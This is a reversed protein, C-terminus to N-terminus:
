LEKHLWTEKLQKDLTVDKGDIKESIVKAAEIGSKM